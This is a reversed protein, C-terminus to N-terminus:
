LRSNDPPLWISYNLSVPTLSNTQFVKVDSSTIFIGSIKILAAHVEEGAPHNISNCNKNSAPSETHPKEFSQLAILEHRSLQYTICVIFVVYLTGKIAKM